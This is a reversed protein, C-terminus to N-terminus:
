SQDNAETLSSRDRDAFKGRAGADRALGDSFVQAHHLVRTKHSACTSSALAEPLQILAAKLVGAAVEVEDRLVPVGSEGAQAIEDLVLREM